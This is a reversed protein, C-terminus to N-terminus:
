FSHKHRQCYWIPDCGTIICGGLSVKGKKAKRVTKQTPLGYVIPIVEDNQNGIPCINSRNWSCDERPLSINLFLGKESQVNIAILSTDGLTMAGAVLDYTQLELGSIKFYGNKDTIATTLPVSNPSTTKFVQIWADKIASSDERYIIRGEVEGSQAFALVNVAFFFYISIYLRIQM